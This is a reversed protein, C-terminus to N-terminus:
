ISDKGMQKLIKRASVHLFLALGYLWLQLSAQPTLYLNPYLSVVDPSSQTSVAGFYTAAHSHQLGSFHLTSVRAKTCLSGSLRRDGKVAGNSLLVFLLQLDKGLDQRYWSLRDAVTSSYNCYVTSNRGEWASLLLPNQQVTMEGSIGTCLSCEPLIPNGTIGDDLEEELFGPSAVWVKNSSVACRVPLEERM